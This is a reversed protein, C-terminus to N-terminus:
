GRAHFVWVALAYLGPIGLLLFKVGAALAAFRLLSESPQQFQDLARWLAVNELTDFVAAVFPAVALWAGLLAWGDPAARAALLVVASILFPYVLLFPVDYRLSSRAAERGAEGWASFMRLARETSWAFEYRFISYPRLKRDIAWLKLSLAVTFRSSSLAPSSSWCRGRARSACSNM